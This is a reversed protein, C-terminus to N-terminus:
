GLKHYEKQPFNLQVKRHSRRSGGTKGSAARAEAKLSWAMGAAFEGDKLEELEKIEKADEVEKVEEM